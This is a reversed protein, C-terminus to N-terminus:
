ASLLSILCGSIHTPKELFQNSSQVSTLPTDRAKARMHVLLCDLSKEKKIILELCLEQM